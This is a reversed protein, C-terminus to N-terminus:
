TLIKRVRLEVSSSGRFTNITPQYVLRLDAPGGSLAALHHAQGFAVARLAVEGERVLFSLHEEGRGMLRPEGALRGGRLGFTPEPNGEGFPSLREIDRLVELSLSALPYEGDVTVVPQMRSPPLDVAENLSRRLEEVRDAELRVGAAMAHGGFGQLCHSSRELAERISVQAISRASGKGEKGELGILLTPRYFEDVIRSAVIGIVGPHWGDRALVIARARELDLTELIEERAQLHIEREIERRRRNEGELHRRLRSAEAPDRSLLLQLALDSQGLRGAANLLPAIRFAISEGALKGDQSRGVRALEALGPARASELALLGYRVLIRNEGKLPVVDAVTGLAVYALAELLFGRFEPSVKRDRSFNQCLAWVVKFVVGVGALHPFPYESDARWPNVVAVAPPLSDGLLHHDIIVLDVGAERAAQAAEHATSGNDVAIILEAGGAALERVAEVNLGYGERLRDPIYTGPPRGLFSLFEHLLATSSMGDVDYDGFIVVAEKERVARAIREVAEPLGPLADPDCLDSLRPDLFQGAAEVDGLGRRVLLDALVSSCDLEEVLVASQEPDVPELEWDPSASEDPLGTQLDAARRVM